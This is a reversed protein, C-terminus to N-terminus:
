PVVSQKSDRTSQPKARSKGEAHLLVTPNALLLCLRVEKQRFCSPEIKSSEQVAYVIRFGCGAMRHHWDHLVIAVVDM